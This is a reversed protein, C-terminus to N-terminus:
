KRKIIKQDETFGVLTKPDIYSSVILMIKQSLEAYIKQIDDNLIEIKSIGLLQSARQIETIQETLEKLAQQSFTSVTITDRPISDQQGYGIASLSILIAIISLRM